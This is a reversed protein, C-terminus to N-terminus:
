GELIFYPGQFPLALRKSSSLFISILLLELCHTTNGQAKGQFFKLWEVPLFGFLGFPTKVFQTWRCLRFEQDFNAITTQVNVKHNSPTVQSNAAGSFIGIKVMHSAQQGITWM